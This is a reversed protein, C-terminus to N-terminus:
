VDKLTGKKLFRLTHIVMAIQPDTMAWLAEQVTPKRTKMDRDFVLVHCCGICVTIDGPEPTADPNGPGPTIADLHTDCYPCNDPDVRTTTM